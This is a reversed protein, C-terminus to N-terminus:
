IRADVYECRCSRSGQPSLQPFLSDGVYSKLFRYEGYYTCLVRVNRELRPEGLDKLKEAM